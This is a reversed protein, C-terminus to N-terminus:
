AIMFCIKPKSDVLVAVAALLRRLTYCRKAANDGAFYRRVRRLLIDALKDSADELRKTADQGGNDASEVVEPIDCTDRFFFTTQTEAEEAM